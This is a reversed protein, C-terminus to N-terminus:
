DHRQMKRAMRAVTARDIREIEAIILAGARVLNERHSKPKFGMWSWPWRVTIGTEHAAYCAAAQALQRHAHADDDELTWGKISIQRFREAKLESIVRDTDHTDV